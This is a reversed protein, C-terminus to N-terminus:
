REERERELFFDSRDLKKNTQKEKKKREKKKKTREEYVKQLTNSFPM